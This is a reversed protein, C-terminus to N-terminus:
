KKELYLSPNIGIRDKPYPLKIFIKRIEKIMEDNKIQLYCQLLLDLPELRYPRMKIALKLINIADEIRWIRLYCVASLFVAHWREEESGELILYRKNFWIIANNMDNLNLYTLGIYYERRGINNSFVNEDSLCIKLDREFKNSRNNGKLTHKISVYSFDESEQFSEPFIPQEHIKGIYKINSNSKFINPYKIETGDIDQIRILCIDNLKTKWNNDHVVLLEDADLVLIHSCKNYSLELYKNRNYAFDVWDHKHIEFKIKNNELIDEIIKVTTDTSGTDCIVAYDIYKICSNLMETIILSENKVIACLCITNDKM